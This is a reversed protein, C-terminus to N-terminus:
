INEVIIVIMKKRKITKDKETDKEKDKKNMIETITEKTIIEKNKVINDEEIIVITVIIETIEITETRITRKIIHGKMKKCMLKKNTNQNNLLLNVLQMGFTLRIISRPSAFINKKSYFKKLITVNFAKKHLNRIM